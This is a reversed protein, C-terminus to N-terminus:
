IGVAEAEHTRDASMATDTNVHRYEWTHEEVCVSYIDVDCHACKYEPGTELM